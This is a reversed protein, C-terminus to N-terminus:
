LVKEKEKEVLGWFSIGKSHKGIGKGKSIQKTRVLANYEAKKKEKFEEPSIILPDVKWAHSAVMGSPKKALIMGLTLDM